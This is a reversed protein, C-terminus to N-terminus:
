PSITVMMLLLFKAWLFPAGTLKLLYEKQYDPEEQIHIIKQKEGEMSCRFVQLYDRPKPVGEVCQWM